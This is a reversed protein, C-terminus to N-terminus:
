WEYDRTTDRRFREKREKEAQCEVCLTTTPQAMLRKVPIKDGCDLCTGFDHNEAHDLAERLETIRIDVRRRLTLYLDREVEIQAKEIIEIPQDSSESLKLRLKPDRICAALKGRINNKLFELEQYTM